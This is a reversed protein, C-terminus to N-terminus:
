RDNGFGDINLRYNMGIFLAKAYKLTILSSILTVPPWIAFHIWLSPKWVIDILFVLPTILAGTIFMSTYAPGDASDHNAYSQHCHSCEPLLQLGRAFLDGKGCAPCRLRLTVHWLSPPCDSPPIDNM